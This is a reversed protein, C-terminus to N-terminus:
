LLAAILIVILVCIFFGTWILRSNDSPVNRTSQKEQKEILEKKHQLSRQLNNKRLENLEIKDQKRHECLKDFSENFEAKTINKLKLIGRLEDM